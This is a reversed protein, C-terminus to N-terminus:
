GHCKRTYILSTKSSACVFNLCSDGGFVSKKIKIKNQRKVNVCPTYSHFITSNRILRQSCAAVWDFDHVGNLLRQVTWIQAATLIRIQVVVSPANLIMLDANTTKQSSWWSSGRPRLPATKGPPLATLQTLTLAVSGIPNRVAVRLGATPRTLDVSAGRTRPWHSWSPKRPFFRLVLQWHWWSFSLQLSNWRQAIKMRFQPKIVQDEMKTYCLYSLGEKSYTAQTDM